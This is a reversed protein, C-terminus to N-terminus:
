SLPRMVILHFISFLRRDDRDVPFGMERVLRDTPRDLHCGMRRVQVPTLKEQLWALVPNPARVHELLVLRGDPRCVRSMERLTREPDPVTCLTLSVTVTDFSADPFPLTSADLQRFEIPHGAASPRARARDLMGTSLDTATFSTVRRWDVLDFTAGTGSGIELVDGRLQRALDRRLRPGMLLREGAAERRDWDTALRDFISRVRDTEATETPMASRTVIPRHPTTSQWYLAAMIRSRRVTVM